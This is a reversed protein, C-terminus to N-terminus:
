RRKEKREEWASDGGGQGCSDAPTVRAASRHPRPRPWGFSWRNENQCLPLLVPAAHPSCPLPLPGPPSNPLPITTSESLGEVRARGKQTFGSMWKSCSFCVDRRMEETAGDNNMRKESRGAGVVVNKKTETAEGRRGVLFTCATAQSLYVDSRKKEKKRKGQDEDRSTAGQGQPEQRSIRTQAQFGGIARGRRGCDGLRTRGGGLSDISGVLGARIWGTRRRWCGAGHRGIHGLVVNLALDLGLLRASRLSRDM